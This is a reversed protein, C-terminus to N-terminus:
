PSWGEQPWGHLGLLMANTLDITTDGFGSFLRSRMSAPNVM